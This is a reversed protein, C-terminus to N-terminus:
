SDNEFTVKEDEEVVQKSDLIGTNELMEITENENSIITKKLKEKRMDFMENAKLEQVKKDKILEDLKNLRYTKDEIAKSNPPILAWNYMQLIFIDFFENEKLGSLKEAHAQSEEITDFAGWIKMGMSNCKQPLEPGVFSVLIFNQKPVKINSESLEVETENKYYKEYQELAKEEAKKEEEQSLPQQLLDSM